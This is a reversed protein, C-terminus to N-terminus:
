ELAALLAAAIHGEAANMAGLPLWGPPLVLNVLRATRKLGEL